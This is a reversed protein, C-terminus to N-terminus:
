RHGTRTQEYAADIQKETLGYGKYVRRIERDVAKDICHQLGAKFGTWLVLVIIIGAVSVAVAECTQKFMKRVAEWHSDARPRSDM